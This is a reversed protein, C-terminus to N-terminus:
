VKKALDKAKSEAASQSVGHAQGALARCCRLSLVMPRYLCGMLM